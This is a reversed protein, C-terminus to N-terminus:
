GFVARTRTWGHQHCCFRSRVLEVSREELVESVRIKIGATVERGRPFFEVEVLESARQSTRDLLVFREEEQVIFGLLLAVADREQAQNRRLGHHRAVESQIWVAIGSSRAVRVTKAIKEVWIGRAGFGGIELAHRACLVQGNRGGSGHIRISALHRPHKAVVDRLSQPIFDACLHNLKIGLTVGAVGLQAVVVGVNRHSREVFALEVDAEVVIKGALIRDKGAEAVILRHREIGATRWSKGLLIRVAAGLVKGVVATIHGYRLSMDNGIVGDILGTGAEVPDEIVNKRVPDVAATGAGSSKQSNLAGIQRTLAVAYGAIRGAQVLGRQVTHTATEARDLQRIVPGDPIASKSGKLAPGVYVGSGVREVHNTAFVVNVEPNSNADVLHIHPAISELVSGEKEKAAARGIGSVIGRVKQKALGVIAREVVLGEIPGGSAAAPLHVPRKDLVIPAYGVIKSHVEAQGPSQHRGLAFGVTSHGVEIEGIAHIVNRSIARLRSAGNANTATSACANLEVLGSEFGADSQSPFRPSALVGGDASAIGDEM